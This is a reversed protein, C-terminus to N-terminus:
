KYNALFNMLKEVAVDEVGHYLCIRIGGLAAHGKLGHLGQLKAKEICDQTRHQDRLFFTITQLSRKKVPVDLRFVPNSEICQYLAQSRQLLRRYLIKVGGQALMWKVMLGTVYYAFIPPTGRQDAQHVQRYYCRSVPLDTSMKTLMQRHIIVVSLGAIGLAKQTGAFLCSYNEVPIERLGIDSTVDVIISNHQLAHPYAIGDITENSVWQQYEGEALIAAPDYEDWSKLQCRDGLISRSHAYMIKSWHGELLVTLRKLHNSINEAIHSYHQRTNGPMWIVHYDQNIGILHRFDATLQKVMQRFEPGTHALELIGVPQANLKGIAQIIQAKVLEPLTAPGAGFYHDM